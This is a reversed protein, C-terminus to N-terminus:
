EGFMEDQCTKCLGSIKLERLELASMGALMQASIVSGCFPCKGEKVMKVEEGFGMKKMIEENM